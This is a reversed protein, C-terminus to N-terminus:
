LMKEDDIDCIQLEIDFAAINISVVNCEWLSDAISMLSVGAISAYYLM